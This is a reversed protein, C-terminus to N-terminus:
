EQGAVLGGVISGSEGSTTILIGIEDASSGYLSGTLFGTELVRDGRVTVKGSLSGDVAIQAVIEATFTQRVPGAGLFQSIVIQGTVTKRDFDVTLVSDGLMDDSTGTSFHGNGMWEGVMTRIGSSPLETTRTPSGLLQFARTNRPRMDLLRVHEPLNGTFMATAVTKRVEELRPLVLIASDPGGRTTQYASQPLRRTNSPGSTFENGGDGNFDGPAFTVDYPTVTSSHRLSLTEDGDFNIDEFRTASPADPDTVTVQFATAEQPDLSNGINGVTLGPTTVTLAAPTPTPSPAPTPAPTVATPPSGGGDSGSGGCGAVALAAFCACTSGRFTRMM